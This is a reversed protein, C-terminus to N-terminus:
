FDENHQVLVMLWVELRMWINGDSLLLKSWPFLAFITCKIYVSLSAVDCVHCTVPTLFTKFDSRVSWICKFLFEWKLQIGLQQKKKKMNRHCTLNWNRKRWLKVHCSLTFQATADAAERSQMLFCRSFSYHTRWTSDSTDYNGTGLVLFM